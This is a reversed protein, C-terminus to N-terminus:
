ICRDPGIALAVAELARTWSQDGDRQLARIRASAETKTWTADDLAM